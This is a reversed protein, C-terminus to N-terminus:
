PSFTLSTLITNDFDGLFNQAETYIKLTKDRVPLIVMAGKKAVDSQGLDGEFRLGPQASAVNKMRPPIYAKAKLKGSTIDSDFGDVVQSYTTDVLELRLAFATDSEVDPVIQPHFYGNILQEGGEAIYVSWTKPYDFSVSGYAAPGKYTQNPLKSQEDFKAQLDKAQAAKAREVAEAAKKDSNKKYDQGTTYASFALVALALVLVILGGIIALTAISGNQNTRLM